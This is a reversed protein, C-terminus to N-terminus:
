PLTDALFIKAFLVSVHLIDVLLNLIKELENLMTFFIGLFYIVMGSALEVIRTSM